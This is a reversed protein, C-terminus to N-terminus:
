CVFYRFPDGIITEGDIRQTTNYRRLSCEITLCFIQVRHRDVYHFRHCSLELRGRVGLGVIFDVFRLEIHGGDDYADSVHVVM